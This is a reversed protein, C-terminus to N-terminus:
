LGGNLRDEVGGLGTGDGGLRVHPAPGQGVDMLDAHGEFSHREGAAASAHRHGREIAQRHEGVTGRVAQMLPLLTHAGHRLHANTDHSEDQLANELAATQTLM